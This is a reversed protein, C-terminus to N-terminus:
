RSKNGAVVVMVILIYFFYLHYVQHSNFVCLQSKNSSLAPSDRKHSNPTLGPTHTIFSSCLPTSIFTVITTLKSLVLQISTLIFNYFIKMLSLDEFPQLFQTVGYM